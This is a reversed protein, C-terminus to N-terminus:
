LFQILNTRPQISITKKIYGMRSRPTSGGSADRQEKLLRRAFLDRISKLTRPLHVQDGLEKKELATPEPRDVVVLARSASGGELSPYRTLLSTFLESYYHIKKVFKLIKPLNRIQKRM